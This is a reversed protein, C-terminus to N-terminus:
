FLLQFHGRMTSCVLTIALMEVNTAPAAHCHCKQPYQLRAYNTKFKGIALFRYSNSLNRLFPSYQSAIPYRFHQTQHSSSDRNEHTNSTRHCHSRKEPLM